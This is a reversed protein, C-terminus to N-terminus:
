YISNKGEAISIKCYMNDRADEVKWQVTIGEKTITLPNEKGKVYGGCQSSKFLSKGNDRPPPVIM